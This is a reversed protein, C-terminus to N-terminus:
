RPPETESHLLYLLDHLLYLLDHLLYLSDHLLYLSDHLLYLLDHLLYLSDHLLYLLDHLLHILSAICYICHYLLYFLHHHVACCCYNVLQLAPSSQLAHLAASSNGTDYHRLATIYDRDERGELGNSKMMVTAVAAPVSPSSSSMQIDAIFSLWDSM